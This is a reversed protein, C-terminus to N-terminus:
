QNTNHFKGNLLKKLVREDEMRIHGAWGLRGINIDDMIDLDKYLNYIKSNWRPHWVGKEQIPGYIKRLIKREFAHLM